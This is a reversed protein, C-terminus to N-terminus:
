SLVPAVQVVVVGMLQHPLVLFMDVVEELVPIQLHMIELTHTQHQIKQLHLVLLMEELMEVGRLPLQELDVVVQEVMLLHILDMFRHVAAVLLGFSVLLILDM